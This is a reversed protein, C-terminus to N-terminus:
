HPDATLVAQGLDEPSDWRQPQSKHSEEGAEM